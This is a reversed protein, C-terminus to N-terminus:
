YIAHREQYHRPLSRCALTQAYPHPPGNQSITYRAHTMYHPRLTSHVSRRTNHSVRARTSRPYQVFSHRWHRFQCYQPSSVQEIIHGSCRRTHRSRSLAHRTCAADPGELVWIQGTSFSCSHLINVLTSLMLIFVAAMDWVKKGTAM